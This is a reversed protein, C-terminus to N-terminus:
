AVCEKPTKDDRFRIFRPHRLGGDEVARGSYAVEVVRDKHGERDLSIALRTADDMGSCQGIREKKGNVYASLIIAGIQGVYKGKGPKYDTIFADVNDVRKVKLWSTSRHPGQIYRATPDKLVAGEVGLDMLAQPDSPKWDDWRPSMVVLPVGRLAFEAFVQNLAARRISGAEGRLDMGMAELCDFAVLSVDRTPVTSGMVSRTAGFDAVPIDQGKFRVPAGLVALEGDLVLDHPYQAVAAALARANATVDRGTRSYVRVSDGKKVVIARDGDYKPEMVFGRMRLSLLDAPAKKALMPSDGM